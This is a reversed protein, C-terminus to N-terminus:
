KNMIKKMKEYDKKMASDQPNVALYQPVYKLFEKVNNDYLYYRTIDFLLDKDKPLSQLGSQLIPFAKLHDAGDFRFYYLWALNKYHDKKKPNVRLAKQYATAALPYEKKAQYIKGLRSWYADYDGKLETAKLMADRAQDLAGLVYYGQALSDYASDNDPKQAILAKNEHIVSYIRDFDKHSGYTARFAEEVKKESFYRLAFPSAGLLALFIAIGILIYIKKM